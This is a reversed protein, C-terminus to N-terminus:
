LSRQCPLLLVQIASYPYDRAILSIPMHWFTSSAEQPDAFSVGGRPVDRAVPKGHDLEPARALMEEGWDKIPERFFTGMFIEPPSCTKPRQTPDIPYQVWKHVLAIIMCM